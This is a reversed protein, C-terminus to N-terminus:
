DADLKIFLAAISVMVLKRAENESELKKFKLNVEPGEGYPCDQVIDGEDIHYYNTGTVSALFCEDGDKWPSYVEWGERFWGYCLIDGATIDNRETADLFKVTYVKTDECYATINGAYYQAAEDVMFAVLVESGVDYLEYQYVSYDVVKKRQSGRPQQQRSNNVGSAAGGDSSPVYGPLMAAPLDAIDRSTRSAFRAKRERWGRHVELRATRRAAVEASQDLKRLFEISPENTEPHVAAYQRAQMSATVFEQSLSNRLKSKVINMASFGTECIVSTMLNALSHEAFACFAEYAEDLEAVLQYHRCVDDTVEGIEVLPSSKNMSARVSFLAKASGIIRSEMEAVTESSVKDEGKNSDNFQVIIPTWEDVTMRRKGLSGKVGCKRLLPCWKLLIKISSVLEQEGENTIYYSWRKPDLASLSKLM